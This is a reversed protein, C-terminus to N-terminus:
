GLDEASVPSANGEISSEVGVFLVGLYIRVVLNYVEKSHEYRFNM